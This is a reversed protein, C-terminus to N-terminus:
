YILRRHGSWCAYVFFGEGPAIHNTGSSDHDYTVYSSGDWAYVAEYTDHIAAANVTLFNNTADGSDDNMHLYSPYPNGILNWNGYTGTEDALDYTVDAVSMTGTFNVTQAGSPSILYGKGNTLSTGANTNYYVFEGNNISPDFHGIASKGGNTRLNNDVDSSTEGTVPVGLLAWEDGGDLSRALTIGKGQSAGGAKAIFSGSNAQSTQIIISGSTNSTLTGNITM